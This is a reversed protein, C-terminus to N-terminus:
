VVLFDKAGSGANVYLAILLVAVLIEGVIAGIIGKKKASM